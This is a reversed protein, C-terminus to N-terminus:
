LKKMEVGAIKCEEIFKNLADPSQMEADFHAYAFYYMPPSFTDENVSYQYIDGNHCVVLGYKYKRDYASMLDEYSPAVSLPHNHIAIIKYPNESCMKKMRRTPSVTDAKGLNIQKLTKGNSSNVYVLDEFRTGNRHAIIARSEEVIRDFVKKPEGLKSLRRSYEDSMIRSKSWETDGDIGKHGNEMEFAKILRSQKQSDFEKKSWVDQYGKDTKMTVMCRCNRHRRYIDDPADWANYIGALNKCWDCCNGLQRRIIVANMGAASRFRVNAEVYMDYFSQCSNCCLNSIFRELNLAM